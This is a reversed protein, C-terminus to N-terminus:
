RDATRARSALEEHQEVMERFRLGPHPPSGIFFKLEVHGHYFGGVRSSWALRSSTISVSAAKRSAARERGSGRSRRLFLGGQREPPLLAQGWGREFGGSGPNISAATAQFRTAEKYSDDM